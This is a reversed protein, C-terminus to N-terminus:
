LFFRCPNSSVTFYLMVKVPLYKRSPVTRAAPTAAQRRPGVAARASRITETCDTIAVAPDEALPISTSNLLEPGEATVIPPKLKPIDMAFESM